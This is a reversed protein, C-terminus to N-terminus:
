STLKLLPLVLSPNGRNTTPRGCAVLDLSGAVEPAPPLIASSVTPRSVSISAVSCNQARGAM